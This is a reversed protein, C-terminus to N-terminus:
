RQIKITLKNEGPEVACREPVDFQVPVKQGDSSTKDTMVLLGYDGAVAGDYTFGKRHTKVTFSGDPQIPGVTILHPDSQHVEADALFRVVGSTPSVGSQDIVTGHVPWTELDPAKEACGVALLPLLLFLRRAKVTCSLVERSKLLDVPLNGRWSM